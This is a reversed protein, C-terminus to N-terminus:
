TATCYGAEDNYDWCANCADLCCELTEGTCHCEECDCYASCVEDTTPEGFSASTASRNLEGANRKLTWSKQTDKASLAPSMALTVCLLMLLMLALKRNANM